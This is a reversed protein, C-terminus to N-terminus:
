YLICNKMELWNGHNDHIRESLNNRSRMPDDSPLDM